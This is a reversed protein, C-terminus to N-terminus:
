VMTNISSLTTNFSWDLKMPPNALLNDESLLDPIQHVGDVASQYVQEGQDERFGTSGTETYVALTLTVLLETPRPPPIVPAPVVPLPCSIM